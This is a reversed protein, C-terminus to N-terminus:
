TQGDNDGRNGFNFLGKKKTQENQTQNTSFKRSIQTFILTLFNSGKVYKSMSTASIIEAEKKFLGELHYTFDKENDSLSSCLLATKLNGRVSRKCQGLEEYSLNAVKTSDKTKLIERMFKYQNEKRHPDGPVIQEDEDSDTEAIAQALLEEDTITM